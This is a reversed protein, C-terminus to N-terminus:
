TNLAQLLTNLALAQGRIQQQFGAMTDQKWATKFKGKWDLSGDRQLTAALDQLELDLCSFVM